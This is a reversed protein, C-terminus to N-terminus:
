DYCVAKSEDKVIKNCKGCCKSGDNYKTNISTNANADDFSLLPVSVNTINRNIRSRHWKLLM